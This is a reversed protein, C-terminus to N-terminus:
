HGKADKLYCSPSTNYYKKFAAVFSSRSAYGVCKAVEKVTIQHEQLLEQAQQMRQGHLYGFVTTGFVQRFGEKLKRDNLHVQRSLEILSPPHIMNQMLISEAQYIRDMDTSSLTLRPSNDLLQDIQLALLELVKS